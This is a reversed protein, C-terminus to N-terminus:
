GPDSSQSSVSKVTSLYKKFEVGWNDQDIVEEIGAYALIKPFNAAWAEWLEDSVLRARHAYFAQEYVSLDLALFIQYKTREIESLNDLNSQASLLLQVFEDDRFWSYLNQQLAVIQSNNESRTAHTNQRVEYVLYVLTLFVVVSGLLEGIAGIDQISM